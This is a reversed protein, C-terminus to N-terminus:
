ISALALRIAEERRGNEVTLRSSEQAHRDGERFTVPLISKVPHERPLGLLRITYGLQRSELTTEAPELGAEKLLPGVPTTRFAGTIRRAQQSM